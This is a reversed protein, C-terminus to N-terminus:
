RAGASHVPQVICERLVKAYPECLSFNDMTLLAITDLLSQKSDRYM